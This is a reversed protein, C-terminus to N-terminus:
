DYLDGTEDDVSSMAASSGFFAGALVIIQIGLILAAVWEGHWLVQFLALAIVGVGAFLTGIITIVWGSREVCFALSWAWFPGYFCVFGIWLAIAGLARTRRSIVLVIAPIAVLIGLLFLGGSLISYISSELYVTPGIVYITIVNILIFPIYLVHTISTIITWWAVLKADNM